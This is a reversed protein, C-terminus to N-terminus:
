CCYWEKVKGKVKGFPNGYKRVNEIMKKNSKLEFGLKVLKERVKLVVKSVDVKNPCNYYCLKCLTCSYYIDLLNFDSLFVKGRPSFKEEKKVKYVPCVKCLGCFSCNEKQSAYSVKLDENGFIEAKYKKKLKKIREVEEKAFKRKKIGIGHEGSISGGLKIILKYLEEILNEKEKSFCPHIICAGIHGFAPIKNKELWELLLPMKNLSVKPDEIIFYGKSALYPYAGERLKMIKEMEKGKIAGRDDLYGILLCHNNAINLSIALEKSLYELFIVKDKVEKVKNVLSEFNSFELVDLSKEKILNTVKLKAKVIIGLRGESGAIENIEKGKVKILKGEGNVLEIEKVWDKMSGFKLARLGSANTAIAGGVTAVKYSSPVVPFFLNYQSLYNNLEEITLGPECIVERKKINVKFNTLKELSISAFSPISSGTLSSGGGRPVLKVKYKKCLKVVKIVEDVNKPFFVIKCNGKLLSADLSYLLLDEKNTSYEVKSKKVEKIFENYLM